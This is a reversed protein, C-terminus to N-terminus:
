CIIHLKYRMRCDKALHNTRGCINCAKPRNMIEMYLSRCLMPFDAEELFSWQGRSVPDENWREMTCPEPICSRRASPRWM